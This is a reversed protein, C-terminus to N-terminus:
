QRNLLSSGHLLNAIGVSVSVDRSVFPGSANRKLGLNWPQRCLIIRVLKGGCISRKNQRNLM